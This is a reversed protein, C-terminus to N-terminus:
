WRSWGHLTFWDLKALAATLRRTMAKLSCSPRRAGNPRSLRACCHAHKKPLRKPMPVSILVSTSTAPSRFRRLLLVAGCGAGPLKWSIPRIAWCWRGGRARRFFLQLDYELTVGYGGFTHIARRSTTDATQCAWWYAMDIAADADPVQKALQEITWWVLLQAADVDIACDALPHAVAQFSGIPRGFQERERAYDAAYELAHQSLGCLAAATLLKWEALGALFANRAAAGNAVALRTGEAGDGSLVLRAVPQSGHNAPATSAPHQILLAVEDGELFLIADAVAGGPIVQARGEMVPHLALTVIKSGGQAERSWALAEEGGLEALLRAAVLTEILVAPALQRGAQEALLAAEFLGGGSGGVALPARLGLMGMEGLAKQLDSSHGLPEAQRVQAMSSQEAFFRALTDHLLMQEENLDLNLM